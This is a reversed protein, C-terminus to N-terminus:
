AADRGRTALFCGAAGGLVFVGLMSDPLHAALSSTASGVSNVAVSLLSAGSAILGGTSHMAGSRATPAALGMGVLYLSMISMLVWPSLAALAQALVMIVGAALALLSGTRVLSLEPVRAAARACLVRGLTFGAMPVFMALGYRHPLWGADQIVLFPSLAYFAFLGVNLSTVVAVNKRYRPEAFLSRYATWVPPMGKGGAGTDRPVAFYLGSSVFVVLALCWFTSRWGVHHTLFGGATTGLAAACSGGIAILALARTTEGRGLTQGVIAQTVSFISGVAFGQVFVGALLAPFTWAAASLVAGGVYVPLLALLITRRGIRDSVYGLALQSCALGVLFVPVVHQAVPTGVSFSVAIAPLAPLFVTAALKEAILSVAGIRVAASRASESTIGAPPEPDDRM